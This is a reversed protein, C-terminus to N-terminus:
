CRASLPGADNFSQEHSVNSRMVSQQAGEQSGNCHTPPLHVHEM